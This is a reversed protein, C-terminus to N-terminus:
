FFRVSIDESAKFVSIMLYSSQQRSSEWLPVCTLINQHLADTRAGFKLETLSGTGVTRWTFPTKGQGSSLVKLSQIDSFFKHLWKLPYIKKFAWFITDIKFYANTEM